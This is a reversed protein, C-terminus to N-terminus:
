SLLNRDLLLHVSQNPLITLALKGGGAPGECVGFGGGSGIRLDGAVAEGSWVGDGASGGGDVAWAM